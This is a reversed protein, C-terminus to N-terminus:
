PRRTLTVAEAVSASPKQKLRQQLEIDALRNLAIINEYRPVEMSCSTTTVVMTPSTASNGNNDYTTTSGFGIGTGLGSATKTQYHTLEKKIANLMSTPEGAKCVLYRHPYGYVPTENLQKAIELNMAVVANDPLLAAAQKFCDIATCQQDKFNSNQHALANMFICVGMENLSIATHATDIGSTGTKIRFASKFLELSEPHNKEHKVLYFQGLQMFMEFSQYGEKRAKEWYEIAGQVNQTGFSAQGLMYYKEGMPVKAKLWFAEAERLHKTKLYGEAVRDFYPSMNEPEIIHEWFSLANKINGETYYFEAIERYLPLEDASPTVLLMENFWKDPKEGKKVAQQGAEFLKAPLLGLDRRTKEDRAIKIYLFDLGTLPKEPDRKKTGKKAKQFDQAIYVGAAITSIGTAIALKKSSYRLHRAGMEFSGRAYSSFSRPPLLIQPLLPTSAPLTSTSKGISLRGLRRAARFM